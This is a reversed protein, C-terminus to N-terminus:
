VWEFETILGAQELTGLRLFLCNRYSLEGDKRYARLKLVDDEKGVNNSGKKLEIALLNNTTERIHVIVDPYVLALDKSWAVKKPADGMKNYEVDVHWEPFTQALHTMLAGAITREAVDNKLLSLDKAMLSILADRVRSGVTADPCNKAVAELM